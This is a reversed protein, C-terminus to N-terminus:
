INSGYRLDGVKEMAADNIVRDVFIAIFDFCFSADISQDSNM